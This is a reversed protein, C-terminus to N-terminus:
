KAASLNYRKLYREQAEDMPKSLERVEALFKVGASKIADCASQRTTGDPGLEDVAIVQRCSKELMELYAPILNHFATKSALVYERGEADNPVTLHDVDRLVEAAQDHVKEMDARIKENNIPKGNAFALIDTAVVEMSKTCRDALDQIERHVANAQKRLAEEGPGQSTPATARVLAPGSSASTAPWGSPDWVKRTAVITQLFVDIYSKLADRSLRHNWVPYRLFLAHLDANYSFMMPSMKEQLQVMADWPPTKGGRPGDLAVLGSKIWVTQGDLSLTFCVPCPFQGTEFTGILCEKSDGLWRPSCNLETLLGHIGEIDLAGSAAVALPAPSPVPATWPSLPHIHNTTNSSQAMASVAAASLLGTVVFLSRFIMRM